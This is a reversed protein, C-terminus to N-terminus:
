DAKASVTEYKVLQWFCNFWIIQFTMMRTALIVKMEWCDLAHSHSHSGFVVGSWWAM